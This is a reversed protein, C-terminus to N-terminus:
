ITSSRATPFRQSATCGRYGTGNHLRCADMCLCSSIQMLPTWSCDVFALKCFFFKFIQSARTVGGEGGIFFGAREGSPLIQQHRSCAYLVGELQLQSLKGQQVVSDPYADFLPYSSPPLPIASCCYLLHPCVSAVTNDDVCPMRTVACLMSTGLSMICVSPLRGDVPQSCRQQHGGGGLGV